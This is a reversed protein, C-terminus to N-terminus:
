SVARARRAQVLLRDLQDGGIVDSNGKMPLHESESNLEISRGSHGGVTRDPSRRRNSRTHANGSVGDDDDEYTVVIPGGRVSAQLKKFGMNHNEDSPGSRGNIRGPTTADNSEKRNSKGVVLKGALAAINSKKDVIAASGGFAVKPLAVGKGRPEMKQNASSPKREIRGAQRAESVRKQQMSKSRGGCDDVREINKGKNGRGPGADRSGTQLEQVFLVYPGRM